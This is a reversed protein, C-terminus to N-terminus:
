KWLLRPWNVIATIPTEMPQNLLFRQGDATVDFNRAVDPRLMTEFLMTPAGPHLSWAVANVQVAMLRGDSTLYIIEKGNNSWVPNSGGPASIRVEM